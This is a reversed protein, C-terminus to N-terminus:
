SIAIAVGANRINATSICETSEQSLQSLIRPANKVPPRTPFLLGSKKVVDIQVALDDKASSVLFSHLSPSACRARGGGQSHNDNDIILSAGFNISFLSTLLSADKQLDVLYFAQNIL